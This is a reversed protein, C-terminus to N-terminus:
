SLVLQREGSDDDNDNTAGNSNYGGDNADNNNQNGYADYAGNANYGNNSYANNSNYGYASNSNSYDDNSYDIYRDDDLNLGGYDSSGSVTANSNSSQHEESLRISTAVVLYVLGVVLLAIITAEITRRINKPIWGGFPIAAGYSSDAKTWEAETFDALSDEDGSKSRDHSSRTLWSSVSQFGYPDPAVPIETPAHPSFAVAYAVPRQRAQEPSVRDAEMHGGFYVAEGAPKAHVYELGDAGELMDRKKGRLWAVRKAWSGKSSSNSSSITPELEFSQVGSGQVSADASDEVQAQREYGAPATQDMGMHSPQRDGTNSVTSWSDATTIGAAVADDNNNSSMSM